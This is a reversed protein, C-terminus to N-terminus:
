VSEHIPWYKWYSLILNHILIVLRLGYCDTINKWYSGLVITKIGTLPLNSHAGLFRPAQFIELSSAPIIGAFGDMFHVSRSFHAPFFGSVFPQFWCVTSISGVLTEFNKKIFMLTYSVSIPGWTMLLCCIPHCLMGVQTMLYAEAFTTFVWLVPTLHWLKM